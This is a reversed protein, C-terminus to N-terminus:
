LEAVDSDPLGGEPLEADPLESEPVGEPQTSWLSPPIALRQLQEDLRRVETAIVPDFPRYADPVPLTRRLREGTEGARDLAADLEARAATLETDSDDLSSEFDRVETLRVILDEVASRYEDLEPRVQRIVALSPQAATQPPWLLRRIRTIAASVRDAAVIALGRSATLSEVIGYSREYADFFRDVAPRIAELLDRESLAAADEPANSPELSEDVPERVSESREPAGGPTDSPSQSEDVPERLAPPRATDNDNITLHPQYPLDWGESADIKHGAASAALVDDPPPATEDPDPDAPVDVEPPQRAARAAEAERSLQAVYALGSMDDDIRGLTAKAANLAEDHDITDIMALRNAYRGRSLMVYLLSRSTRNDAFAMAHDVTRGQARHATTAIGHEIWPRGDPNSGNIYAAPLSARARHSDGDIREVHMVQQGMHDVGAGTIRWRDGNNVQEGNTDLIRPANRGTVIIDGVAFTQIVPRNDADLDFRHRQYVVPGLKLAQRAAQNLDHVQRKTRAM